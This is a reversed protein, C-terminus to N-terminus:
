NPIALFTIGGMTPTGAKKLHAQPGDEQVFQGTKLRNLLPIVVVGLLGCVVASILFPVLLFGFKEGPIMSVFEVAIAGFTLVGLFVM